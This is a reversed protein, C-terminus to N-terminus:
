SKLDVLLSLMEDNVTFSQVNLSYARQVLIMRSFEEALDVASNELSEPTILGATDVFYQEGTEGNAEFLTNNYPTLNEPATFGAVALKAITVDHGNDYHARLIGDRDFAISTFNGSPFGNQEIKTIETTKGLQTMKSIDVSVSSASGDAWSINVNVNEPTKISGDTNFVVETASGVATGDELEFSLDWTNQKGEIKKFIMNLNAGDYNDSYIRISYVSKDVDNAPVNAIVSAETTEKQPITVPADIIINSPVNSFNDKGDTSDFGQVYMGNQAVLYTVGDQTLRTFDGARTYYLNGYGDNLEFFANSNGHLAVDLTNGTPAVLGEIDINTRDYYGVGSISTRSSHLGSQSGANLGSSGLLTYFLTENKKYGTTRINAINESVTQQAHSMADMGTVSPIFSAITMSYRM